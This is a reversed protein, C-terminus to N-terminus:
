FDFQRIIVLGIESHEEGGLIFIIDQLSVQVGMNIVTNNAIAVM